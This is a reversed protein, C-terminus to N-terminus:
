RISNNLFHHNLNNQFENMKWTFQTIFTDWAKEAVDFTLGVLVGLAVGKPGAVQSGVVITSAIKGLRYTLRYGSIKGSNYEIGNYIVEGGASIFGVTKGGYKGLIRRSQPSIADDIADIIEASTAINTGAKINKLTKDINKSKSKKDKPKEGNGM